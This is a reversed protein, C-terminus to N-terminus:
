VAVGLTKHDIIITHHGWGVGLRILIQVPTPNEELHQVLTCWYKLAAVLYPTIKIFAETIKMARCIM